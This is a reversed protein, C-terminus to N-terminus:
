SLRSILFGAKKVSEIVQETVDAESNIELIKDASELDVKWEQIGQIQEIGPKITNICGNCKLSTKFTLKEM